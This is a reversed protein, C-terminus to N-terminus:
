FQEQKEKMLAIKIELDKRAQIEDEIKNVIGHYDREVAETAQTPAISGEQEDYTQNKTEDYDLPLDDQTNEIDELSGSHYSIEDIEEMRKPSETKEEM